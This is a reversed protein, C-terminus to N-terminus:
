RDVEWNLKEVLERFVGRIWDEDDEHSELVVREGNELVAIVAHELPADEDFAVYMERIFRSNVVREFDTRGVFLFM